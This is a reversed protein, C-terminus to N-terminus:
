GRGQKPTACKDPIQTDGHFLRLTPGRLLTGSRDIKHSTFPSLFVNLADSVWGPISYGVGSDIFAEITGQRCPFGIVPALLVTGAFRLGAYVGSSFGFAGIGVMTRLSFGM